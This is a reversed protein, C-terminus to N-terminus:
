ITGKAGFNLPWDLLLAAAIFTDLEGGAIGFRAALQRLLRAEDTYLQRFGGRLQHSALPDTASFNRTCWADDFVEGSFDVHPLGHLRCTLPRDAYALCRGAASLLPCPTANEEPCDWEEPPIGNLLYPPQFAPWKEQRRAVQASARGRVTGREEAPLAALGDRLALADLFTIDFLGHCCGACGEGCRIQDPALALCRAFWADAAALLKRYASLIETM